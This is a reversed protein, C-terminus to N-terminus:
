KVIGSKFIDNPYKLALTYIVKTQQIVNSHWIGMSNGRAIALCRNTNPNKPWPYSQGSMDLPEKIDSEELEVIERRDWPLSNLFAYRIDENATSSRKRKPSNAEKM